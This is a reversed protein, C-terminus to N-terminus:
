KIKVLERLERIFRNPNDLKVYCNSRGTYDEFDKATRVLMSEKDWRVDGISFYYIRGDPLEFFGSLEFHGRGIEIKECGFGKLLKKFERKFVKSFEAFEPTLGSSSEFEQKM